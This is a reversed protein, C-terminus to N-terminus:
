LHVAHQQPWGAPLLTLQLNATVSHSDVSTSCREISAGSTTTSDHSSSWGVQCCECESGTVDSGLSTNYTTMMMM